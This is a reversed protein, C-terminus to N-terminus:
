RTYHNIDEMKLKDGELTLQVGCNEAGCRWVGGVLQFQFGCSKGFNLSLKQVKSKDVPVQPQLYVNHKQGTKRLIMKEIDKYMFSTSKSSQHTDILQELLKGTVLMLANKNEGNVESKLGNLDIMDIMMKCTEVQTENVALHLANSGDADKHNVNLTYTKLLSQVVGWRKTKCAILLLTTRRAYCKSPEEVASHTELFRTSASPAIKYKNAKTMYTEESDSIVSTKDFHEPEVIKGPNAEKINEVTWQGIKKEISIVPLDLDPMKEKTDNEEESEDGDISVAEGLDDDDLFDADTEDNFANDENMHNEKEQDNPHTDKVTIMVRSTQENGEEKVKVKKESIMKVQGDKDPIVPEYQGSENLRQVRKVKFVQDEAIVTNRLKNASVRGFRHQLDFQAGLDMNEAQLNIYEEDFFQGEIIWQTLVVMSDDEEALLRMLFTMGYRDRWDEMDFAYGAADRKDKDKLNLFFASFLPLIKEKKPPSIRMGLLPSVTKFHVGLLHILATIKNEERGILHFAREFVVDFLEKIDLIVDFLGHVPNEVNSSREPFFMLELSSINVITKFCEVLLAHPAGSLSEIKKVLNVLLSSANTLNDKVEEFQLVGFLLEAMKLDSAHSLLIDIFNERRGDRGAAWEQIDVHKERLLFEFKELSISRSEVMVMLLTRDFYLPKDLWEPNDDILKRFDGLTKASRLVEMALASPPRLNVPFEVLYTKLLNAELKLGQNVLLAHATQGGFKPGYFWNGEGGFYTAVDKMFSTDELRAATFLCGVIAPGNWISQWKCINNVFIFGHMKFLYKILLYWMFLQNRVKSNSTYNSYAGLDTVSFGNAALYAFTQLDQNELATLVLSKQFYLNTIWTPGIDKEQVLPSRGNVYTKSVVDLLLPKYPHTEFLNKLLKFNKSEVAIFVEAICVAWQVSCQNYVQLKNGLHDIPQQDLLTKLVPNKFFDDDARLVDLCLTVVLDRTMEPDRLIGKFMPKRGWEHSCLLSIMKVDRQRLALAVPTILIPEHIFSGTSFVMGPVSRMYTFFHINMKFRALMEQVTDLNGEEVAVHLAATRALKGHESDKHLNEELFTAINLYATRSKEKAPDKIYIYLKRLVTFWFFASDTACSRGERDYVVDEM